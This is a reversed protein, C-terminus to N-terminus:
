LNASDVTVGALVIQLDIKHVIWAITTAIEGSPRDPILRGLGAAYLVVIEGPIAPADNTVVSGDLHTAVITDTNLQFLAPATEQLPVVVAPGAMGDRVVQVKVSKATLESPILLNIQTPSVYYLPARTGAVYVTVGALTLPMAAARDSPAAQVTNYSLNTGYLSAISNPALRAIFAQANSPSSYPVVVPYDGDGLGDPIKGNFQNVGALGNIGGFDPTVPVNNILITPLTALKILGPIKGNPVPTQTAGFGNGYL